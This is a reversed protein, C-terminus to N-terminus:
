VVGLVELHGTVRDTLTMLDSVQAPLSEQYREALILLRSVLDRQVQGVVASLIEELRGLWKEEVVLHKIADVELTPYKSAIAKDLNEFAVKIQLKLDAQRTLLAAYHKIAETEEVLNANKANEM